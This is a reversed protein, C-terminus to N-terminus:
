TWDEKEGWRLGHSVSASIPVAYTDPDNMVVQLTHVAEDVVDGPVDLVIEDHVPVVMYEGLGAADLALQKQKFLAAGAGQILFNVLAYVKNVDGVQRRGTIPCRVYPLGETKQRDWAVQEVRRALQATGPYLEDWRRRVVRAQDEPIGATLAFKRIGAGYITAYGANKTVQRRKDKKDSISSDQYIERALAIFFDDDGKFARILGVDQSMHAMLRMEIQDFDCMLLRGGDYRTSISNRVVQAARNAESRRPLNQLNPREMSCRSTRAGLTNISPHICDNEDVEDIFHRLYTTALKQLQRRQLVTQALPHDIHGLVEKDLALAGSATQKSFELGEGQLIKIIAANSGAKVGYTDLIWREAREVYETFSVFKQGAYSVDIHAGYREMKETVWTYAMELEYAKPADDLVWPEHKMALHATLVADLAAYQWYPGYEVPVTEWSWGGNKVAKDLDVQGGASRPDVWRTAQNKLATSMHPERIHAMVRTDRILHRPVHLSAGDRLGHHDLVGADYKANHMYVRHSNDACFRKIILDEFLGGWREVPITWGADLGGVQITRVRDRGIVLGTTETDVSVWDRGELWQSFDWAADFDDVLHLQMTDPLM